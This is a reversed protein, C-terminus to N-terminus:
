APCLGRVARGFATATIEGAVARADDLYDVDRLRPLLATRLGLQALRREQLRGTWATSMPVGDFVDAVPRRLGLGWWGGDDAHGLVADIGPAALRAMASALLAPTVQPTEMGILFAPGPTGAFAGALRAAHSGSRQPVVEVGPPLWSGATGDLVLARRAAPAECVAALTTELSAAAVQAAQERSLQPCLRTKSRGPLPAKALVLLATV